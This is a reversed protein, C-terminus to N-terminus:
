DNKKSKLDEKYKQFSLMLLSKDQSYTIMELAEEVPYFGGDVFNQEKNPACKDDDAKMVYWVIKNCVPRQRTVSYFEYNTRGSSGIIEANVGAEVNVRDTAVNDPFDGNRIVGKPFIWEGKENKLILVKNDYFVVGGACNRILM